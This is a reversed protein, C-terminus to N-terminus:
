DSSWVSCGVFSNSTTCHELLQSLQCFLSTVASSASVVWQAKSIEKTAQLTSASPMSRKWRWIQSIVSWMLAMSLVSKLIGVSPSSDTHRCPFSTPISGCVRTCVPGGFPAFIPDLCGWGLALSSCITMQCRRSWAFGGWRTAAEPWLSHGAYIYDCIILFVMLQADASKDRWPFFNCATM